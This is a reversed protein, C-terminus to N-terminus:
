LGQYRVAIFQGQSRLVPGHNIHSVAV